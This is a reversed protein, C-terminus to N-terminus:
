SARASMSRTSVSGAPSAGSVASSSRSRPAGTSQCSITWSLLRATASPMRCESTRRIARSTRWPRTSPRRRPRRRRRSRRAARRSGPRGSRGGRPGRAGRGPRRRPARARPGVEGAVYSTRSGTSARGLAALRGPAELLGGAHHHGLADLVAREVPPRPEGREVLDAAVRRDERDVDVLEVVRHGRPLAVPGVRHRRQGGVVGLAALVDAGPEGHQGLHGAAPLLREVLQQASAGTGSGPKPESSHCATARRRSARGGARGARAAGRSRRSPSARPRRGCSTSRARRPRRPRPARRPRRPRRRGVLHARHQDLRAARISSGACALESAAFSSASVM